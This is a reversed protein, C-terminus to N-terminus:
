CVASLTAIYSAPISLVILICKRSILSSKPAKSHLWKPIVRAAAQAAQGQAGDLVRRNYESLIFDPDIDEEVKTNMMRSLIDVKRASGLIQNFQPEAIGNAVRAWPMKSLPEFYENCLQIVPISRGFVEQAMIVGLTLIFEDDQFILAAPNHYSAARSHHRNCKITLLKEFSVASILFYDKMYVGLCLFPIEFATCTGSGKCSGRGSPIVLIKEAVSNGNLPHHQDIAIGTKPDVGGWFSLGVTSALVQGEAVGKILSKGHLTASTM